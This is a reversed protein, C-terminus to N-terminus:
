NAAARALEGDAHVDVQYHEAELGQSVFKALAVDDEAMLIRM